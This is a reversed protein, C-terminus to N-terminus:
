RLNDRLLRRIVGDTSATCPRAAGVSGVEGIHGCASALRTDVKSTTNNISHKFALWVSANM